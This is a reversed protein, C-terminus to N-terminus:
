SCSYTGHLDDCYNYGYYHDDGNRDSNSPKPEIGIALLVLGPEELDRPQNPTYIVSLAKGTLSESSASPEPVGFQFASGQHLNCRTPRPDRRGRITITHHRM